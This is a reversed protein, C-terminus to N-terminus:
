SGHIHIHGVDMSIWGTGDSHYIMLSPLKFGSFAGIGRTQGIPILQTEEAITKYQKNLSTPKVWLDFYAAFLDRKTNIMAAPVAKILDILGGRTYSGVDSFCYVRPGAEDVRLTSGNTKVYGRDNLLNDLVFKTNPKVGM